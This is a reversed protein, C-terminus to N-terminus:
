FFCTTDLEPAYEFSELLESEESEKFDLDFEATFHDFIYDLSCNKQELNKPMLLRYVYVSQNLELEEKGDLLGLLAKETELVMKRVEQLQRENKGSSSTDQANLQLKSMQIFEKVVDRMVQIEQKEHVTKRSLGRKIFALEDSGKPHTVFEQFFM